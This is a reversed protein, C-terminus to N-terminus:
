RIKNMLEVRSHVNLKKFLKKNHSAVTGPQINLTNAIEKDSKGDAILLAIQQERSSLGTSTFISQQVSTLLIQNSNTAESKSIDILKEKEPELTKNMQVSNTIKSVFAHKTNKQINLISYIFSLFDNEDFPKVLCGAAGKEVIDFRKDKEALPLIFLFPIDQLSMESKCKRFLEIGSLLPLSYESIILNPVISTYTRLLNWADIGSSATFVTAFKEILSIIFESIQNNDEVLIILPMDETKYNSIQSSIGKKNSNMISTTFIEQKCSNIPLFSSAEKQKPLKILITFKTKNQNSDIDITGNYYQLAKKEIQFGLGSYNSDKTDSYEIDLLELKKSQSIFECRSQVEYTIIDNEEKLLVSIKINRKSLQIITKIFNYFVFELLTQNAIIIYDSPVTITTSLVNGKSKALVENAMICSNVFPVLLIAKDTPLINNDILCLTSLLDVSNSSSRFLFSLDEKKIVYNKKETFKLISYVINQENMLETTIKKGYYHNTRLSNNQQVTNKIQLDLQKFKKTVRVVASYVAPAILLLIFIDFSLYHENDLITFIKQPFFIRLIHFSQRIFVGLFLVIWSTYLFSYDNKKLINNKIFLITLLICNLLLDSMAIFYAIEENDILLILIFSIVSLILNLCLLLKGNVEKNVEKAIYIFDITIFCFAFLELFYISRQSYELITLPNWIYIPGIGKLEAITLLSFFAAGSLFLYIKDKFFCGYLFLLAISILFLGSLLFCIMSYWSTQYDYNRLPVISINVPSGITSILKVRIHHVAGNELNSTFPIYMRWSPSNMQNRLLMRGTRGFIQWEGDNNCLYVEALSIPESGFDIAYSPGLATTTNPFYIDLWLAGKFFGPNFHSKAPTFNKEILDSCKIKNTKDYFKTVYLPIDIKKPIKIETDISSQVSSIFINSKCSSLFIGCIITLFWYSLHLKKSM